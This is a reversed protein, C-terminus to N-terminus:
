LADNGGRILRLSPRSNAVIRCFLDFHSGIQEAVWREAVDQGELAAIEVACDVLARYAPKFEMSLTLNCRM